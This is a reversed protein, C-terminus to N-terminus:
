MGAQMSQAEGLHQQVLPVAGAAAARLQPTDGSAAYDQQLALAQQHAMVQQQLYVGDFQMPGAAILQDIMARKPATLIPPPPAVSAAKAASLTTNTLRTHHDILKQAYARVGPSRSRALAMQSSTIEYIDGEGAMTLFSATQASPMAPMLMAMESRMQGSRMQAFAEGAVLPALALAASAALLAKSRTM